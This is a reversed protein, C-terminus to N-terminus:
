QLLADSHKNANNINDKYYSLCADFGQKIIEEYKKRHDGNLIYFKQMQGLGLSTTVSGYYRADTDNYSVSFGNYLKSGIEIPSDNGEFVENCGIGMLM